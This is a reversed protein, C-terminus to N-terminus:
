EACKRLEENLVDHIDPATRKLVIPRMNKDLFCHSTHGTSHLDEDKDSYIEYEFDMKIGNYKVIRLLVRFTDGYTFSKRYTCEASLVPIIIGLNEIQDYDLGVQELYYLRAEELWRVYNSHHVIGMRDTEYYAVKREYPKITTKM